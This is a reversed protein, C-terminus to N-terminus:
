SPAGIDGKPKDDQALPLGFKLEVIICKNYDVNMTVEEGLAMNFDYLVDLIFDLLPLTFGAELLFLPLFFRPKWGERCIVILVVMVEVRLRGLSDMEGLWNDDWKWIVAKATEEGDSKVVELEGDRNPSGAKTVDVVRWADDDDVECCAGSGNGMLGDGLSSSFDFGAGVSALLGESVRIVDYKILDQALNNGIQAKTPGVALPGSCFDIKLAFMLAQNQNSFALLGMKAFLILLLPFKAKAEWILNYLPLSYRFMLLLRTINYRLLPSSLSASSSLCFEKINNGCEAQSGVSVSENPHCVDPLEILTSTDANCGAANLDSANQCVHHTAGSNPYWSSTGIPMPACSNINGFDSDYVELAAAVLAKTGVHRAEAWARVKARAGGSRAMGGHAAGLRAVNGYPRRIGLIRGFEGQMHRRASMGHLDFPGNDSGFGIGYEAMNPHRYFSATRAQPPCWSQNQFGGLLNEGSGSDGYVGCQLKRGGYVFFSVRVTNSANPGDYHRSKFELLVDVLCQFPLTETSFSTLTLVADFDSLLGTLVVEVKEAESVASGSAALLACVNKIKVVYERVTLESKKISHLDHKVRSIKAGTSAAFLRNATRLLNDGVILRLKKVFDDRTIKKAKFLEYNNAVQDMDIRPIKNSIAVFLMPFPM